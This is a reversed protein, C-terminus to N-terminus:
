PRSRPATGGPARERTPAPTVKKPPPVKPYGFIQRQIYEPAVVILNGDRYHLSAFEGGNRVWAGPEIVDQILDMLSQTGQPPQSTSRNSPQTFQISGGVGANYGVGGYGGYFGSSYWGVGGLLPAQDLRLSFADNFNTPEFTLEDIPVMRIERAADVSLREKTGVEIFGNRLQWTCPDIVSCQELLQELVALAPVNEAELTLPLEPDIGYGAPDDAYRGILNVDLAIKLFDFAERAPTRDFAVSIDRYLLAQLM